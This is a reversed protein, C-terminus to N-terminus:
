KRLFKEFARVLCLDHFSEIFDILIHNSYLNDHTETEM